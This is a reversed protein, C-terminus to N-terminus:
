IYFMSVKQNLCLFISVLSNRVLLLLKSWMWKQTCAFTKHSQPMFTSCKTTNETFTSPTTVSFPTEHTWGTSYRSLSGARTDVSQSKTERARQNPPVQRKGTSQLMIINKKEKEQRENRQLDTIM